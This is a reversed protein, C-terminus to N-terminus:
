WHVSGFPHDPLELVVLIVVTPIAVPPTTETVADLAQPALGACVIVTVGVNIGDAGLLM